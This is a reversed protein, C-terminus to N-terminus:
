SPVEIYFPTNRRYGYLTLPIVAGMFPNTLPKAVKVLMNAKGIDPHETRGIEYTGDAWKVIFRQPM